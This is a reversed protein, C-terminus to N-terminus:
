AFSEYAALGIMGFANDIETARRWAAIPDRRVAAHDWTTLVTVAVHSTDSVYIVGSDNCVGSFTG